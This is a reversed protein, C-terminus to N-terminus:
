AARTSARKPAAAFLLFAIGSVALAEFVATAENADRITLARPIHLVLVWVFVMVGSLLAAVRTTVPVLLGIGGAILAVGAFYTWFMAGPIWAPVLAVVFQAWLFHQVGCVIMFGGLFLRGVFLLRADTARTTEATAAVVLAGGALALAKGANTWALGVSADVLATPLAFVAATFLLIKALLLATSRVRKGSFMLAGAAILGAGILYAWASRLPVWAPWAPMIRTVFEGYILHQLGFFVCAVAYFARGVAILRDSTALPM